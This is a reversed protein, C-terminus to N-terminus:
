TGGHPHILVPGRAARLVKTSVSGLIARGRRAREKPADFGRRGVAILTSETRGAEDLILAAPDGRVVRTRPRRGLMGELGDARRGLDEEAQSIQDEFERAETSGVERPLRPHARVLAADAGFLSGIRAALEGAAEAARSADDGVVVTRPPWSGGGGRVVLVPCPARHVVGEAVSGLVLREVPGLGRSGMVILSGELDEALAVIEDAPDGLELFIEEVVGGARKIGEVQEDLLRRAEQAFLFSYREPTSFHRAYDSINQGVHVVQLESGTRKCLDAAIGAALAADDSGDTALLTQSPFGQTM